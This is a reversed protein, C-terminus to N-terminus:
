EAHAALVRRTKNADGGRVNTMITPKGGTEGRVNPVPATGDSRRRLRM